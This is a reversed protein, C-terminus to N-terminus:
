VLANFADETLLLKAPTVGKWYGFVRGVDQCLTSLRISGHYRARIDFHTMNHPFSDGMRGKNLIIFLANKPIKSLGDFTSGWEWENKQYEEADCLVYFPESGSEYLYNRICKMIEVFAKCYTCEVALRVVVLRNGKQILDNVESVASFKTEKSKLLSSAYHSIVALPKQCSDPITSNEFAEFFDSGSTVALNSNIYDKRGTYQSDDLDMECVPFLNDHQFEKARSLNWPTASIHLFIVNPQCFLNAFFLKQLLTETKAGGKLGWHCEDHFVYYLCRPDKFREFLIDWKTKSSADNAAVNLLYVRNELYHKLWAEDDAYQSPILRKLGTDRGFAQTLRAITQDRLSCQSPLFIVFDLKDYNLEKRDGMRMLNCLSKATSKQNPYFYEGTDDITSEELEGECEITRSRQGKKKFFQEFEPDAEFLHKTIQNM